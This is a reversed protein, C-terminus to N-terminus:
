GWPTAGGGGEQQMRLVAWAAAAVATYLGLSLLVVAPPAKRAAGPLLLLKSLAQQLQKWHPVQMTGPGSGAGGGTTRAVVGKSPEPVHWTGDRRDKYARPAVAMAINISRRALIQEPPLQKFLQIAQCALEDATVAKTVDLNNLASHLEPMGGEGGGAALLARRQGRMAAAGVYLPMLPHVALFLDFLRAAPELGGVDHSFWTIFWSLAYYPPLGLDRALAALEPDAAELVPGMLGLLELVPDLTPRTADRLPGTALRCLIAFAAREGAVLLLVSAVDHLGQYYHVQGGHHVVVANLLRALAERREQREEADAGPMFSWLSRAVDCDVVGSDRHSGAAAELYADHAVAAADAGALTLWLRSRLESNVLGRVAALKRLRQLDQGDALADNIQRITEQDRERDRQASSPLHPHAGRPRHRKKKKSM